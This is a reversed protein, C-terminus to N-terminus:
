LNRQRIADLENAITMAYTDASRQTEGAEIVVFFGSAGFEYSAKTLSYRRIGSYRFTGYKKEGYKTTPSVISLMPTVQGTTALAVSEVMTERYVHFRIERTPSSKESIISAGVQAADVSSALTAISVRAERRGYSVQSASNVSEVVITTGGSKAAEVFVSNILEKFRDSITLYKAEGEAVFRMDASSPLTSATRRPHFFLAANRDVGWEYSGILEALDNLARGATVNRFDISTATFSTTTINSSSFTVSTKSVVGRNLMIDAVISEVKTNAYSSTILVRDLHGVYGNGRITLRDQSGDKRDQAIEEAYGRYWLEPSASLVRYIRLDWNANIGGTDRFPRSLVVTFDGCGGIRNYAWRASELQHETRLRLSGISDRWELLWNM